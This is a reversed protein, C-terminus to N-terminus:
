CGPFLVESGAIVAERGLIFARNDDGHGFPAGRLVPFRLDRTRDTLVQEVTVGDRGPACRTFGGLVLAGLNALHGGLLLSTLMRDVRYPREDVDELFLIGGPPLSLHGAAAMAELLALNGGCTVGRAAGDRLVELGTWRTPASPRELAMLWAARNAPSTRGLGTVNPGHISAMGAEAATVHLATV